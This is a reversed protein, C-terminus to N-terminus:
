KIYSPFDLKIEKGGVFNIIRAYNTSFHQSEGIIQFALRIYVKTQPIKNQKIM